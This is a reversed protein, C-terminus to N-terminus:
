DTGLTSDDLYTKGLSSTIKGAEDRPLERAHKVREGPIVSRLISASLHEDTDNGPLFFPPIRWWTAWRQKASGADALPIVGRRRIAGLYELASEVLSPVLTVGAYEAMHDVFSEVKIYVQPGSKSSALLPRRQFMAEDYDDSPELEDLYERLYDAVNATNTRDVPIDGRKKADRYALLQDLSFRLRLQGTGSLDAPSYYGLLGARVLHRLQTPTTDLAAAAEITTLTFLDEAQVALM